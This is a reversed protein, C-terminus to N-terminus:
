RRRAISIGEDWARETPLEDHIFNEFAKPDITMVASGINVARIAQWMAEIGAALAKQAAYENSLQDDSMVNRAACSRITEIMNM